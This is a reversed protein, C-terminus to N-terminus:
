KEKLHNLETKVIMQAIGITGTKSLTTALTDAFMSRWMPGATSDGFLAESDKPMSAELMQRLYLAEFQQGVSKAKAIAQADHPNHTASGAAGAPERRITQGATWTALDAASARLIAPM